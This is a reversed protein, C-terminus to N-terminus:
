GRHHVSLDLTFKIQTFLSNSSLAASCYYKLFNIQERSKEKGQKLFANLARQRINPLSTEIEFSFFSFIVSSMKKGQIKNQLLRLGLTFKSPFFIPLFIASPFFHINGRFHFPSPYYDWLSYSNLGWMKPVKWSHYDWSWFILLQHYM